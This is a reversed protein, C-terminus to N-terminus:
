KSENFRTILNGTEGSPESTADPTQNSENTPYDFDDDDDDDDSDQTQTIRWQGDRSMEIETATPSEAIIECLLREFFVVCFSRFLIALIAYLLQNACM